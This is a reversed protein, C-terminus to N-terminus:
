MGLFKRNICINNPCHFILPQSPNPMYRTNLACASQVNIKGDAVEAFTSRWKGIFIGGCPVVYLAGNAQKEV